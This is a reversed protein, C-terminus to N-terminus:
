KCNLVEDGLSTTMWKLDNMCYKANRVPLTANTKIETDRDDDEDINIGPTLYYPLITYM